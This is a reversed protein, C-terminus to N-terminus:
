GGLWSLTGHPAVCPPSPILPEPCLKRLPVGTLTAIAEDTWTDRIERVKAATKVGVNRLEDIDSDTMLRFDALPTGYM